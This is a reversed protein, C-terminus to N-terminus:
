RNFSLGVFFFRHKTRICAEELDKINIPELITLDKSSRISKSIIKNYRFHVKHAKFRFTGYDIGDIIADVKYINKEEQKLALSVLKGDAVAQFHRIKTKKLQLNTKDCLIVWEAYDFSECQDEGVLKYGQQESDLYRYMYLVYQEYNM